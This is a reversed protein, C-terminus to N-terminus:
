EMERVYILHRRVMNQVLWPLSLIQMSTCINGNQNFKHGSKYELGKDMCCHHGSIYMKTQM